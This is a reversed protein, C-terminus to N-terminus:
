SMGRPGSASARDDSTVSRQGAGGAPITIRVRTGRGRQSEISVDGGLNKMIEYSVYLGLGTGEGVDKTTFFPDFVRHLDEEGIGDGTDDVEVVLRDPEAGTRVVIGGGSRTADVANALVNILVQRLRGRPVAVRPLEEEGEIRIRGRGDSARLSILQVAEEVLRRLDTPEAPAEV